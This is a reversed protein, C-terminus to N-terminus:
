VSGTSRTAACIAFRRDSAPASSQNEEVPEILRVEVQLVQLDDRVQHEASAGFQKQGESSPWETRARARSMATM